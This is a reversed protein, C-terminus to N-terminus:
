SLNILVLNFIRWPAITSFITKLTYAFNLSPWNQFSFAKTLRFDSLLLFGVVVVLVVVVVVVVVVINTAM